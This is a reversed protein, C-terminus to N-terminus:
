LLIWDKWKEETSKCRRNITAIQINHFKAASSLSEYKIGYIIVQKSVPSNLGTYKGILTNSIKEKTENPLNKNQWTSVRGNEYSEKITKSLNECHDKSRIKNFQSNLEGTRKSAMESMKLKTEESHTKGYMGNNSGKSGLSIKLKTEESLKTGTSVPLLEKNLYRDDTDYVHFTNGDKDKVSVKNTADWKTDRQNYKNYYEPNNEVDYLSHLRIEENLAEERSDCILLIKYDYDSKNNKQNNIFEKNTSSSFYKIGLDM